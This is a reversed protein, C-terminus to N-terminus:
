HRTGTRRYPYRAYKVPKTSNCCPLIQRSVSFILMDVDEACYEACVENLKSKIPGFVPLTSPKSKDVAMPEAPNEDVEPDVEMQRAKRKRNKSEVVKFKGDNDM